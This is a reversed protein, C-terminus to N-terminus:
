ENQFFCFLNLKKSISSSLFTILVLNQDALMTWTISFARAPSSEESTEKMYNLLIIRTVSTEQHEQM